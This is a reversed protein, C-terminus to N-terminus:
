SLIEELQIHTASRSPCIFSQRNARQASRWAQMLPLCIANWHCRYRCFSSCGAIDTCSDAFCAQAGEVEIALEEEVCRITQDEGEPLAAVRSWRVKEWRVQRKQRMGAVEPKGVVAEWGVEDTHIDM